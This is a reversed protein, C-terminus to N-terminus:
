AGTGALPPQDFETVGKTVTMRDFDYEITYTEIITETFYYDEHTKPGGDFDTYSPALTPSFSISEEEGETVEEEKYQALIPLSISLYYNNNNKDNKFCFNLILGYNQMLLEMEVESTYDGSKGTSILYNMCINYNAPLSTPLGSQLSNNYDEIAINQDKYMSLFDNMDAGESSPIIYLPNALTIENTNANKAEIYQWNDVWQASVPGDEGYIVDFTIKDGKISELFLNAADSVSLYAQQYDKQSRISKMNSSVSNLLLSSFVGFVLVSVLAHIITIGKENKIKKSTM